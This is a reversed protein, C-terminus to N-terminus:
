GRRRLRCAAACARRLELPPSAGPSGRPFAPTSRPATPMFRNEIRKQPARTLETPVPNLAKAKAIKMNSAYPVADETTSTCSDAKAGITSSAGTAPTRASRKSRRTMIAIPSPPDIPPSRMTMAATEDSRGPMPSTQPPIAAEEQKAARVSGASRALTLSRTPGSSYTRAELM